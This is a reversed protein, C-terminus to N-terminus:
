FIQCNQRLKVMASVSYCSKGGGGSDGTCGGGGGGVSGGGRGEEQKNKKTDRKWLEKEEWIEKLLHVFNGLIKNICRSVKDRKDSKIIFHQFLWLVIGEERM